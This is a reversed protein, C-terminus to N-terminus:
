EDVEALPTVPIVPAKLAATKGTPAAVVPPTPAPAACPACSRAAGSLRIMQVTWEEAGSGTRSVAAKYHSLRACQVWAPPEAWSSDGSDGRVCRPLTATALASTITSARRRLRRGAAAAAACVGPPGPVCFPGNQTGEGKEDDGQARYRWCCEPTMSRHLQSSKYLFWRM